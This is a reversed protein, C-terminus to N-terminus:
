IFEIDKITNQICIKIRNLRGSDDFENKLKEYDDLYNNLERRYNLRGKSDM